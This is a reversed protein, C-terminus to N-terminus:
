LVCTAHLASCLSIFFAARCGLLLADLAGAAADGVLSHFLAISSSVVAAPGALAASALERCSKNTHTAAQLLLLQQVM